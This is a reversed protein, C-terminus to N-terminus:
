YSRSVTANRKIGVTLTYLLGDSSRWAWSRKNTPYLLFPLQRKTNALRELVILETVLGDCVVGPLPERIDVVKMALDAGSLKNYVRYVKGYTGSGLIGGVRWSDRPLNHDISFRKVECGVSVSSRRRQRRVRAASSPAAGILRLSPKSAKISARADYSTSSLLAPMTVTLPESSTTTNKDECIPGIGSHEHPKQDPAPSTNGSELNHGGLRMDRVITIADPDHVAVLAQNAAPLETSGVNPHTCAARSSTLIFSLHRTALGAQMISPVWSEPLLTESAITSRWITAPRNVSRSPYSFLPYTSSRGPVRQYALVPPGHDFDSGVTVSGCTSSECISRDDDIDDVVTKLDEDQFTLSISNSHLSNDELDAISPSVSRAM